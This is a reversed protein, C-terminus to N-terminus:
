DSSCYWTGALSQDSRLEKKPQSLAQNFDSDARLATKPYTDRTLKRALCDADTRSPSASRNLRFLYGMPVLHFDRADNTCARLIWREPSLCFNCPWPTDSRTLSRLRLVPAIPQDPDALRLLLSKMCRRTEM